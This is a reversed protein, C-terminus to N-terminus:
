PGEAGENPAPSLLSKAPRPIAEAAVQECAEPAALDCLAWLARGVESVEGASRVVLGYVRCGRVGRQQCVRLSQARAEEIRGADLDLQADLACASLNGRACLEVCAKQVHISRDYSRKADQYSQELFLDCVRSDGGFCGYRVLTVYERNKERDPYLEAATKDCLPTWLLKCTTAIAGLRGLGSSDTPLRGGPKTEQYVTYCADQIGAACARELMKLAVEKDGQDLAEQGARMCEQVAFNTLECWERDTRKKACGFALVLLLTYSM